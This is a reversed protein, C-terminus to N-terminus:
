RAAPRKFAARAAEVRGRLQCRPAHDNVLGMAQMFAYITTPGLWTFGRQKLAAALATSERSTTASPNSTAPEYSWVFAALSGKEQQLELTRAANNIASEIKGRHRIISRDDLLSNVDSPGMAAVTGPDFGHFAARFAPRKRLVTIWALGSQFSELCLKEFLRVDDDVPWGWEDDHYAIYEPASGAWSCRTEGDPGTLLAM